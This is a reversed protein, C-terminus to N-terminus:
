DPIAPAQEPATSGRWRSIAVVETGGTRIPRRLLLSTLEQGSGGITARTRVWFLNSAFGTGAPLAVRELALDDRTLKGARARVAM